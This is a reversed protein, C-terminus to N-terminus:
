EGAENSSTLVTLAEDRVTESTFAVRIETGRVMDRTRVYRINADRLASKVNKEEDSLRKSLAGEMDVQLVFHVGGSLDLGKAMPKGGIDQLWQPTTSALNLAVVYQRDQGIPHGAPQAFDDSGPFM